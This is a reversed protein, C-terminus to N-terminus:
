DWYSKRNAEKEDRQFNLCFQLLGCTNCSETDRCGVLQRLDSMERRRITIRTKTNARHKEDSHWNTEGNFLMNLGAKSESVPTEELKSEVANDRLVRCADYGLSSREVPQKDYEPYVHGYTYDYLHGYMYNGYKYTKIESKIEEKIELTGDLKLVGIRDRLSKESDYLIEHKNLGPSDPRAPIIGKFIRMDSMSVPHESAIFLNDNIDFFELSQSNSGFWIETPFLIVTSSGSNDRVIKSFNEFSLSEDLVHVLRESDTHTKIEVHDIRKRKHYVSRKILLESEFSHHSFDYEKYNTIIGNHAMLFQNKEDTLPHNCVIRNATSTPKRHHFVFLSDTTLEKFFDDGFVDKEDEWRKRLLQDKAIGLGFGESGRSKQRNYVYEIDLAISNQDRILGSIIGCM